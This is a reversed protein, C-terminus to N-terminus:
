ARGDALGTAAEGVQACSLQVISTPIRSTMSLPWGPRASSSALELIIDVCPVVRAELYIPISKCSTSLTIPAEGLSYHSRGFV